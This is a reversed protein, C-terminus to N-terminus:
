QCLPAKSSLVDLNAEYFAALCAESQEPTADPPPPARVFLGPEDAAPAWGSPARAKWAREAVRAEDLARQLERLRAANAVFAFHTYPWYPDLQTRVRRLYSARGLTALM